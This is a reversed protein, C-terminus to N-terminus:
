TAAASCLYVPAETVPSSINSIISSGHNRKTHVKKFSPPNSKTQHEGREGTARHGISVSPLPTTGRHFVDSDDSMYNDETSQDSVPDYEGPEEEEEIDNHQDNQTSTM